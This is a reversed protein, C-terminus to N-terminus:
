GRENILNEQFSFRVPDYYDFKLENMKTTGINITTM